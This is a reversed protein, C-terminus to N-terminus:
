ALVPAAVMMAAAAVGIFKGAKSLMRLEGTKVPKPGNEPSQEYKQIRYVTCLRFM